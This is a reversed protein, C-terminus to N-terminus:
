SYTKKTLNPLFIAPDVGIVKALQVATDMRLRIHGREFESVWQKSKGIRNGLEKQKFGIKLRINKLTKGHM